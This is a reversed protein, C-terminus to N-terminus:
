YTANSKSILFGMSVPKEIADLTTLQFHSNCCISDFSYKQYWHMDGPSHMYYSYHKVKPSRKLALSNLGPTTTIFLDTQIRSLMLWTSLGPKFYYVEVNPNDINLLPDHSDLSIYGVFYKEALAKLLLTNTTYRYM